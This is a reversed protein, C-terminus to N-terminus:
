DRWFPKALATSVEFRNTRIDQLERDSMGALMARDRARDRARRVWTALIAPVGFRMQPMPM